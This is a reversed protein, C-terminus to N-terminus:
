RMAMANVIAASRAAPGTVTRSVLLTAVENGPKTVRARWAPSSIAGPAEHRSRRHLRRDDRDVIYVGEGGTVIRNPSEGHAHNAMHTSPHFLTDRDWASLQDNTLM